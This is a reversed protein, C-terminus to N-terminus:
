NKQMAAKIYQRAQYIERWVNAPRTAEGMDTLRVEGGKGLAHGIAMADALAFGMVENVQAPTIFHHEFYPAHVDGPISLGATHAYQRLNHLYLYAERYVDFPVITNGDPIEVKKPMVCKAQECIQHSMFAVAMAKRLVDRPQITGAGMKTLFVELRRLLRYINQPDKEDFFEKAHTHKVQYRDMLKDVMGHINSVLEFVTENTPPELVLTSTENEDIGNLRLIQVVKREIDLAKQYVHRVAIDNSFLKPPLQAFFSNGLDTKFINAMEQNLFYLESFVNGMDEEAAKVPKVWLAMLIVFVSLYPKV